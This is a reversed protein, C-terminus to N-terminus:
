RQEEMEALTAFLAADSQVATAFEWATSALVGKYDLMSHLVCVRYLKKVCVVVCYKIYRQYFM